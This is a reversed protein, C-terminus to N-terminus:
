NEVENVIPALENCLVIVAALTIGGTEFDIKGIRSAIECSHSGVPVVNLEIIAVV